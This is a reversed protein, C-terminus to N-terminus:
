FTVARAGHRAGEAQLGKNIRCNGLVQPQALQGM